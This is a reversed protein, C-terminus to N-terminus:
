KRVFEYYANEADPSISKPIKSPDQGVHVFILREDKLQLWWRYVVIKNGGAKDSITHRFRVKVLGQNADLETFPHAVSEYGTEHIVMSVKNHRIRLDPPSKLYDDKGCFSQKSLEWDGELQQLLAVTPMDFEDYKFEQDEQAEDQGLAFGCCLITALAFAIISSKM